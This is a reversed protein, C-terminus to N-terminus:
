EMESLAVRLAEIQEISLTEPRATSDMGALLVKERGLITGLQKRRKGFLHHVLDSFGVVDKTLAVPRRVLRAVSSAVKPQPYFCSPPLRTVVEIDYMAQLVIGLPGYLRHGGPVAPGAVLREVVEHQLMVVAQKMVMSEVMALNVLLPSAVNYPLNAVLSYTKTEGAFDALAELMAPNVQYKGALVDAHVLRWRDNADGVQQHLIGVLDDDIEVALVRAGTELVAETLTGTGAGVELVVDNQSLRAAEVIKRLQNHDHLFNQGFRKKPQTGAAALMAQIQSLTQM